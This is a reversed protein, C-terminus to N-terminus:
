RVKSRLGKRWFFVAVPILVVGFGVQSWIISDSWATGAVFQDHRSLTYGSIGATLLVLATATMSFAIWLPTYLRRGSLRYQFWTGSAVLAVIALVALLQEM